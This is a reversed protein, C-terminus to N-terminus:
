KRQAWLPRTAAARPPVALRYRFEDESDDMSYYADGKEYDGHGVGFFPERALGDTGTGEVCIAVALM